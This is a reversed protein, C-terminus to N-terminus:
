LPLFLGMADAAEKRLRPSSDYNSLDLDTRCAHMPYNIKDAEKIAKEGARQITYDHALVIGVENGYGALYYKDGKKYQDYMFFKVDEDIYIPFGSTPHQIRLGVSAGFGERFYDQYHRVDGDLWKIMLEPFSLMGLNMVLNPTANYGKRCCYELFYFRKDCVIINMDVPGTYDKFEPLTMLKGVTEVALKCDIPVIFEIDQACGVMEGEDHNEKRKCEFNAHALFPKGKYVWYEINVELGDKREQLIYKGTEGTQSELYDYLERNAKDPKFADPVYTTYTGVGEDPKFVYACEENEDLFKMGEEKTSFEFTPPPNVGAKKAIDAGFKRDNELNYTFETGGLVKFGAKILTEAEDTSHNGDWIFYASKFKDKNKMLETLSIKPVIGEGVKNFEKEGEDDEKMNHAILAPYGAEICLAAWGLGSFDKTVIVITPKKKLPFLDSM